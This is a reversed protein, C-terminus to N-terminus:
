DDMNLASTIAEKTFFVRVRQAYVHCYMVLCSLSVRYWSVIPMASVVVGIVLRSLYHTYILIDPNSIHVAVGDNHPKYTRLIYPMCASNHLAYM